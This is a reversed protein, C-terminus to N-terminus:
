KNTCEIFSSFPCFVKGSPLQQCSSHNQIKCWPIYSCYSTGIFKCINYLYYAGGALTVFAFLTVVAKKLTFKKYKSQQKNEM